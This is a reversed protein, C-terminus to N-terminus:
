QLAFGMKVRMVAGVEVAGNSTDARGKAEVVRVAADGFGYSKPSESLVECKVRGKTDRVTCALTTTGEIEADMARAPYYDLLASSDPFRSWVAKVYAPPAVIVPGTEAVPGLQGVITTIPGTAVPSDPTAPTVPITEEALPTVTVPDHIRIPTTAPKQEQVVPDPKKRELTIIPTEMIIEGDPTQAMKVEFREHIIYAALGVHVLTAVAVGAIVPPTLRKQPTTNFLPNRTPPILTSAM